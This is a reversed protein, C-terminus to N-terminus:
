EMPKTSRDSGDIWLELKITYEGARDALIKNMPGPKGLEAMQEMHKKMAEETPKVPPQPQPQGTAMALLAALFGFCLVIPLRAKMNVEPTGEIHSQVSAHYSLRRHVGRPTGRTANRNSIQQFRTTTCADRRYRMRLRAPHIPTCALRR